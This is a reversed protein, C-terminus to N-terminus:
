ISQAEIFLPHNHLRPLTRDYLKQGLKGHRNIVYKCSLFHDAIFDFFNSITIPGFVPIRCETNGLTVHSHAHREDSFSRDFDFRVYTVMQTRRYLEQDSLVDFLELVSFQELDSSDFCIPCPFYCLRHWQVNDQEIKYAIQILSGDALMINFDNHKLIQIYHSIPSTKIFGEPYKFLYSLSPNTHWSISYCNIDYQNFVVENSNIVIEADLFIDYMKAVDSKIILALDRSSM